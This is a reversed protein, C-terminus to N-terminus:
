PVEMTRVMRRMVPLARRWRDSPSMARVYWVLGSSVATYRFGRVPLGDSFGSFLSVRSGGPLARADMAPEEQYGTLGRVSRAELTRHLRGLTDEDDEGAPAAALAQSGSAELLEGGPGKLVVRFEPASGKQAVSWTNPYTLVFVGADVKAAFVRASTGAVDVRGLWTYLGAQAAIAVAGLV